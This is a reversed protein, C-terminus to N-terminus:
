AFAVFCFTRQTRQKRQTLITEHLNRWAFQSSVDDAAQLL